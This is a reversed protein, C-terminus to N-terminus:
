PELPLKTEGAKLSGLNSRVTGAGLPELCASCSSPGTAKALANRSCFATAIVSM